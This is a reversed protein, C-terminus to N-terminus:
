VSFGKFERDKLPHEKTSTDRSMEQSMKLEYFRITYRIGSEM